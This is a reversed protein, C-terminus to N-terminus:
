FYVEMKMLICFTPLGVSVKKVNDITVLKNLVNGPKLEPRDGNIYFEDNPHRLENIQWINANDSNDIVVYLLNVIEISKVNQSYAIITLQNNM